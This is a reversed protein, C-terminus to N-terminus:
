RSAAKSDMATTTEPLRVDFCAAERGNRVLLRGRCLVPHNWTTGDPLAKFSALEQPSTPAAPVLVVEGQESLVLIVDDVLLLQGYNYRGKKWKSKGTALDVCTLIGDDLGYVFGDKLLLDNFKPKLRNTKWVQEVQWPGEPKATLEIRASGVGYGCGFLLSHDDLPVPQAASVRADNSWPTFWLEQGDSLRHGGMGDGSFILVQEVAHFTALSPSAYGAIHTGQQWVLDGTQKNYAAVSKGATGGPNVIVLDGVVLPSGSMGWELNKAPQEGGADALINRQWVSKGTQLEVCNLMGAAGLAFLRDGDVQPTARPGPGGMPIVHDFKEADAHLWVQEGSEVRYCVIVEEAERQEQTFAFDGVVAFSSWGIGVPHRWLEQPPQENWNRRLGGHRVIGDRHPGRYGPWDSETVTWNAATDASAAPGAATRAGQEAFYQRAAADPQPSWRWALIPLMDGDASDIRVVAAFVAFMAAIVGLGALRTQWRFRSLFLWWVFVGFIAAPWVFLISMYWHTRDEPYVVLWLIAQAIIAITLEGVPLWWRHTRWASSRAPSEPSVASM